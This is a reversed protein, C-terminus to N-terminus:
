VLNAIRSGDAIADAILQPNQCDGIVHIEPATGSLDKILDINPSLPLAILITDAELTLRKGEANTIILGKDNIEEYKVRTYTNVGKENM